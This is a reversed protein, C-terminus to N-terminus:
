YNIFPVELVSEVIKLKGGFEVTGFFELFHILNGWKECLDYNIRM